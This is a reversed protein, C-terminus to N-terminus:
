DIEQIRQGNTYTSAPTFAGSAAAAAAPVAAHVPVAGSVFCFGDIVDRELSSCRALAAPLPEFLSPGRQIAPPIPAPALPTVNTSSGAGASAAAQAAMAADYEAHAAAMKAAVEGPAAWDEVELWNYGYVRAVVPVDDVPVWKFGDEDSDLSGEPAHREIIKAYQAITDFKVVPPPPPQTARVRGSTAYHEENWDEPM